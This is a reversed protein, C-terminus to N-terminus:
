GFLTTAAGGFGTTAGGPVGGKPRSALAKQGVISRYNDHWRFRVHRYQRPLLWCSLPHEGLGYSM